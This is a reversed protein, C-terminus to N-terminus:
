KCVTLPLGKAWLEYFHTCYQTKLSPKGKVDGDTITLPLAKAELDYTLMLHEARECSLIGDGDAMWRPLHIFNETERHVSGQFTSILYPFLLVLGYAM